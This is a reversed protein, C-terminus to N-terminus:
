WGALIQNFIGIQRVACYYRYSKWMDAFPYLHLLMNRTGLGRKQGKPSFLKGSIHILPYQKARIMKWWTFTEHICLFQQLNTPKFLNLKWKTRHTSLDELLQEGKHLPIEYDLNPKQTLSRNWEHTNKDQDGGKQRASSRSPSIDHCSLHQRLYFLGNGICFQWWVAQLSKEQPSIYKCCVLWLSWSRCTNKSYFLNVRNKIM